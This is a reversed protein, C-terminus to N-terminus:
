IGKNKNLLYNDLEKAYYEIFDLYKETIETFISDPYEFEDLDSILHDATCKSIGLEEFREELYYSKVINYELERCYFIIVMVLNPIIVDMRGIQVYNHYDDEEDCVKYILKPLPKKNVILETIDMFFDKM